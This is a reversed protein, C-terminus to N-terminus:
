EGGGKKSASVVFPHIVPDGPMPRPGVRLVSLIREDEDHVKEDNLPDALMQGRWVFCYVNIGDPIPLELRYTGPSTEALRHTFPDWNNFSGAVFVSEGPPGRWLFRATRGDEGLVSYVGPLESSLHPLDVLSVALGSGELSAKRANTPDAMWAGDVVIRYSLPSDFDRPVKYVLVFVGRENREYPHITVFGEHGFAAGVFRHVGGYTLVLYDDRVVPPIPRALATIFLHLPLSDIATAGLGLTALFLAAVLAITKKM